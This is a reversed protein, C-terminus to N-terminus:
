DDGEPEPKKGALHAKVAKHIAALTKAKAVEKGDISAVYGGGKAHDIQIEM